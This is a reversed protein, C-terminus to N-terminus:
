VRLSPGNTYGYIGPVTSYIVIVHSTYFDFIIGNCIEIANGHKFRQVALTENLAHSMLAIYVPICSLHSVQVHQWTTGFHAEGSLVLSELDCALGELQHGTEQQMGWYGPSSGRRSTRQLSCIESETMCVMQSLSCLLIALTSPPSLGYQSSSLIKWSALLIMPARM